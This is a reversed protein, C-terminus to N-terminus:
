EGGEVTLGELHAVDNLRYLRWGHQTDYRLESLSGSDLWMQGFFNLELKLVHCVLTRITGGHAVVLVTEGTAHAQQIERMGVLARQQLQRYSEGGLRVTDAPNRMYEAMHEPYQANLEEPTLGEWRGVDIERLEPVPQPATGLADGIITATEWARPMTSAYIAQIRHTEHMNFVRTAVRRAQFRGRENLMVDPGQYRRTTNWETEGHRVLLLRM